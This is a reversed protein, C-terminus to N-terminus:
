GGSSPDAPRSDTASGEPIEPSPDEEQNIEELIQDLCRMAESILFEPDLGPGPEQVVRSVSDIVVNDSGESDEDILEEGDHDDMGPPLPLDEPSSQNLLADESSSAPSDPDDPSHGAQQDLANLIKRPNDEQGPRSVDDASVANRQRDGESRPFAGAEASSPVDYPDDGSARGGGSSSAVSSEGTGSAASSPVEGDEGAASAQLIDQDGPIKSQQDQTM